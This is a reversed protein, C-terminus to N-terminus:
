KQLKCIKRDYTLLGNTEEEIDSVQTYVCGSLGKAVLPFIEDTMLHQYDKQFDAITKCKKYGYERGSSIHEKIRCAYGGYESIVFARKREPRVFQRSFYNHESKFDGYGGDFWGSATDILRHPDLERFLETIRKSHFQGWGENFIVWTSICPFAGLHDVTEICEKIFDERGRLNKRCLLPCFRDNFHTKIKPLVTPLWTMIPANYGGGNVMDQWVVMGLRDCHYYWRASEIKAHKRLLNFGLDKMTQIDYILAEDSPATYLGDPWYGQDLVGNLFLPTHNLCFRPIGESDKEITFCRMAFYSFVQDSGAHIKLTYLYPNEPTWPIMEDVDCYCDYNCLSDSHNTGYTKSVTRGDADLVYCVVNDEKTHGFPTNLQLSVHLTEKEYDPTLKLNTIYTEPVWEMWVTQWIGSQATYFMGGRKLKQKGVSHYSTDSRDEVRVTLVNDGQYLHKTIDVSFPLYGGIHSTVLTGNVYIRAYQDVAGFHLICHSGDTPLSDLIIKRQYFLVEDPKLQRGVGSLPAEPSFPVLIQGEYDTPLTDGKGKVFTYDWYGNLNTYTTDLDRVLQPRPYENLIDEPNLQEGWITTLPTLAEKKSFIRVSGLASLLDM